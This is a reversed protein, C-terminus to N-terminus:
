KRKWVKVAGYWAVPKLAPISELLWADLRQLANYLRRFLGEGGPLLRFLYAAPSVLYAEEIEWHDFGAAFTKLSRYSIAQEDRTRLGPTVKRGLWFLPHHAMPEAFTARGDLGLVRRIERGAVDLDLHHLIAKGYIRPFVGGAFPLEEASAQVFYVPLGPDAEVIRQRARSMQVFSLDVAVVPWGRRAMELTEKGEGCALELVREGPRGDLFALGSEVVAEFAPPTYLFRDLPYRKEAEQEHWALERRTVARHQGPATSTQGTM